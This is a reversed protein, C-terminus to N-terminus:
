VRPFCCRPWPDRGWRRRWDPWRGRQRRCAAPSALPGVIIHTLEQHVRSRGGGGAKPRRRWGAARSRRSYGAERGTTAWTSAGASGELGMRGSGGCVGAQGVCMGWGECGSGVFYSRGVQRYSMAARAEKGRRAAPGWSPCGQGALREGGYIVRCGPGCKGGSGGRWSHARVCAHGSGHVHSVWVAGM